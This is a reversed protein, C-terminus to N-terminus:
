VNKIAVCNIYNIDRILVVCRSGRSSRSRSRSVVEGKCECASVTRDFISVTGMM